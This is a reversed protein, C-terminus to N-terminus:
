RRKRYAIVTATTLMTLILLITESPFEPIIHISNDGITDMTVTDIDSDLVFTDSGYPVSFNLTLYQCIPPEQKLEFEIWILSAVTEAPVYYAGMCSEGHLVFGNTNDITPTVPVTMGGTRHTAWDSTALATYGTQTANLYTNNFFVKVQWTFTDVTLNLWVTVNFKYGPDVTVIDITMTSPEIWLANAPHPESPESQAQVKLVYVYGVIMLILLSIMLTASRKRIKHKEM